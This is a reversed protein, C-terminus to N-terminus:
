PSREPPDLVSIDILSTVEFGREALRRRISRTLRDRIAEASLDVDLRRQVFLVALLTEQGSIQPRTFRVNAEVLDAVDEGGIAQEVAATARQALSSRRLNPSDSFQWAVLAALTAASVALSAPFLWPQGRDYRSERSTLGFVRFVLAGALNIGGLQLLLVFLGSGAMDWRGIAASMGVLAAPPALSAAVLVGVAAGSVLSNRESQCLNLAGAAGAVLPLLLAVSSVQSQDVMATTAVDQGLVMSMLWAVAIGVGLAGLYRLLSRGLLTADGRASAMAAVMAPGAFPAILMAATLLFMTNTYLGIWSVVGSAAAYGLFGTWSGVSQLAGLFIEIPSLPQIDAAQRPSEFLPAQLHIVGRPILTLQLGPIADLHRTVEEVAGNTLHVFLLTSPGDDGVADVRALDLGGVQRVAEVTAEVSGQPARIM